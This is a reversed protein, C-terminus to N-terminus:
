PKTGTVMQRNFSMQVSENKVIAIFAATFMQTRIKIYVNTKM